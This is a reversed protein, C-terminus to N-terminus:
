GHLMRCTVGCPPHGEEAAVAVTLMPDVTERAALLELQEIAVGMVDENVSLVLLSLIAKDRSVPLTMDEVPTDESLM